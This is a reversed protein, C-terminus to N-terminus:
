LSHRNLARYLSSKSCGMTKAVETGSHGADLLSRAQRAQVENIAPPRGGIRGRARAAALGDKVRRRLIQVEYEALAGMMSQLLQGEPTTTDIPNSISQFHVRRERLQEILNILQKLSGAIRDIAYVMVTDGPGVAKLLAALEPREDISRSIRDKYVRALEVGHEQLADLQLAEDQQDRSVRAYGWIIPKRSEAKPVTNQSQM